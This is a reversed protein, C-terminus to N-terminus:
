ANALLATLLLANVLATAIPTVFIDQWKVNEWVAM